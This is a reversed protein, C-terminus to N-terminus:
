SNKVEVILNFDTRRVVRVPTGAPAFGVELRAELRRGGIEIQGSPFLSTVAVGDHGILSDAASIMETGQGAGRVAGSVALRDWKWTSPLFRAILALFGGAVLFALLLNQLPGALLEQDLVVPQGPWIDAMSWILSGLILVLGSVAVVVIGPFFFLEIAVLLVGLGFVLLPEHGSLGAIFNSLFVIVLLAIGTIGFLGFGPTKFEIFLALLGLGLLVPSIANMFVALRESWTVELTKVSYMGAGFAQKLLDDMDKAVGAALLPAPPEGYLASAESATLTLLEGKPKIVQEGIKLEYDEDIMASIVQGRHGKGESVSRVEARLYSVLKQRMSRDIEQGTANVPAAAGIKGRPAFWIEDTAASIFAGASLAESNVFALTKGPFKELAEMMERTVDLAGGPTNIDLVVADAKQEVAEKLGRRLIYLLPRAVQERVPIIVVNSKPQDVVLETSHVAAVVSISSLWLFSIWRLVGSLPV